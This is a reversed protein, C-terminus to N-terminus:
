NLTGRYFSFRGVQPFAAAVEVYCVNVRKWVRDKRPHDRGGQPNTQGLDPSIYTRHILDLLVSSGPGGSFGILLDGTPKLATKRPGDPKANIYPELSRRFKFSM